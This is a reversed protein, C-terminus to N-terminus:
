FLQKCPKQTEDVRIELNRCRQNDGNSSLHRTKPSFFNPSDEGKKVRMFNNDFKVYLPLFQFEGVVELLNKLELM